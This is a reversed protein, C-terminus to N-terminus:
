AYIRKPLRIDLRTGHGPVSEVELEGQILRVREKIVGPGLNKAELQAHSLRGEFGFGRGDDIIALHWDDDPSSLRVLLHKAGSHKRVNMLAEQLIQVIERCVEPPLSVQETDAVFKASIGTERAFKDVQDSMLHVMESPEFRTNRLQNMLGRVQQIQNRLLQQVREIHSAGPASGSEAQHKMVDLQMELGILAQIPGDHLERAVHAREIAGARAKLRRWLYVNHLAPMVFRSIRQVFLVEQMRPVNLRPDLILLRAGLEQGFAAKVGLLSQFQHLTVFEGPYVIQNESIPRGQVDIMRVDHTGDRKAVSHWAEGSVPYFYLLRKAPELELFHGFNASVGGCGLVYITGSALEEAVFVVATADYFARIESLTAQMSQTLGFEAKAKAVSRAIVANERRLRKENHALYGLLVSM